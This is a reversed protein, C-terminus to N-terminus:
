RSQGWSMRWCLVLHDFASMAVPM